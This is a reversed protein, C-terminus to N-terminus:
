LKEERVIRWAMRRQVGAVEAPGVLVLWGHAQLIGVVHSATARDRIQSPGRQYIEALSVYEDSWQTQLWNLLREALLIDQNASAIQQIRIAERLYFQGVLLAGALSKRSLTTVHPNDFLERVCAIRAAQEPIKNALGKVPELPGGPKILAEIHDHFKIWAARAESDFQILRPALENTTDPRLPLTLRLNSLVQKKFDNIQAFDNDSPERWFRTGMISEPQVALIRSLLGQDRLIPDSFLRTAVLPQIQLHLCLRRGSLASAGDGARVRKVDTGDWFASLGAATKLRNDDNMAYGGLFQGGENSFVGVSPWGGRLLLYLGEFSPEQCTLMPTLPTAPPPGLVLLEQRKSDRTPFSKKDRLIQERQSKWAALDQEYTHLEGRTREILEQERAITGDLARDDAATKREGTEGVVVLYLSVPRKAGTPLVVDALGQVSLCAAALTAQAAISLPCRVIRQIAESVARLTPGLGTVPYEQSSLVARRLPQRLEPGEVETTSLQLWEAAKAWVEKGFVEACTHHGTFPKGARVRKFTARVEETKKDGKYEAVANVFAVVHQEDWQGRALAGALALAAHNRAGLPPWHRAIICAAALIQVTRLLAEHGIQLPKGKAYWQLTQGTDPHVSPPAMTQTGTGRLEVLMSKTEDKVTPDRFQVTPFDAPTVQYLRHTKVGGRGFECETRRLFYRVLNLAEDCDLDVDAQGGSPVGNLIGLNRSNIFAKALADADLLQNQWGSGVPKKSKPYLPVCRIGRALYELAATLMPNINPTQSADVATSDETTSM